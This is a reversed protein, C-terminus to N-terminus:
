IKIRVEGSVIPATAGNEYQVVLAGDDDIDFVRVPTTGESNELVVREGLLMSGKRYAEMVEKPRFPNLRHMIEEYIRAALLNVSVPAEDESFLAGAIEQIEPPFGGKPPALNIGIGLIVYDVKKGDGSLASEALIGCVKKRNLYLDNVWKIKPRRSTSKEIADCVAVAALPTLLSLRDPPLGPRLMLSMYLGTGKPSFFSRGKQGKGGTQADAVVLAGEPSGNQAEAKALINTSTTEAMCIIPIQKFEESLAERIRAENLPEM